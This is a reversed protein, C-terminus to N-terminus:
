NIQLFMQATTLNNNQLVFVFYLHSQSSIINLVASTCQGQSPWIKLFFYNDIPYHKHTHSDRSQTKRTDFLSQGACHVWSSIVISYTKTQLKVPSYIEKCTHHVTGIHFTFSSYLFVDLKAFGLCKQSM